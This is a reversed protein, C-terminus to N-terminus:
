RANKLIAKIDSAELPRFTGIKVKGGGTAAQALEEIDADTPSINLEALSTPM